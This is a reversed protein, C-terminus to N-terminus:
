KKIRSLGIAVLEKSRKPFSIFSKCQIYFISRYLKVVWNALFGSFAIAVIIAIASGIIGYLPILIFNIVVSVFCGIINRIVAYRQIGETLIIQGSAYFLGIFLAKWAMVQLVPIAESYKVGFTLTIIIKAGLSFFLSLTLGVILMVDMFKQRFILYKTKDTQYNKVLIPTITQVIVSPIFIIFNTLKAAVSFFGLAENDIMNRILVQDIRQYIIIATGSLLLPFSEKIFYKATKKDFTWHRIEKGYRKHSIIYGSAVLMFDFTLAIIFWSLEAKILLLIVKICTGFITRVIETKVVYENLIISTFYNRIINFTDFVVSLSYIMVMTITFRDSEFILLTIFILLITIIAFFLRLRFATGMILNTNDQTKALERIEINDLGFTALVKFLAVYSIVYSMIGLKVPGLYRAVLIGIFLGSLINVIKGLVAWSINKLIKKRNSTLNLKNSINSLNNL